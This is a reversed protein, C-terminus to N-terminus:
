TNTEVFDLTIAREYEHATPVGLVAGQVVLLAQDGPEIVVDVSTGGSGGDNGSPDQQQSSTLSSSPSAPRQLQACGVVRM